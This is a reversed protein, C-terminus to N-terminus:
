VHIVLYKTSVEGGDHKRKKGKGEDEMKANMDYFFQQKKEGQSFLTTFHLKRLM